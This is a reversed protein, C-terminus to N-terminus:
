VADGNREGCALLIVTTGNVCENAFSMFTTLNPPLESAVASWTRFTQVIM